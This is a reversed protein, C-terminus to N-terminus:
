AGPQATGARAIKQRAEEQKAIYFPVDQRKMYHQFREEVKAVYNRTEPIQGHWSTNIFYKMVNNHGSNYEAMTLARRRAGDYGKKGWDSHHEALLIVGYCVNNEEDMLFTEYEHPEKPKRGLIQDILRGTHPMVQMLGRAGKHSITEPKFHSETELAGYGLAIFEKFDGMDLGRKRAEKMASSITQFHPLGSFPSIAEDLLKDDLSLNKMKGNVITVYSPNAKDHTKLHDVLPTLQNAPEIFAKHWTIGLHKVRNYGVDHGQKSFEDLMNLVAQPNRSVATLYTGDSPIGYNILKDQISPQTQVPTTRELTPMFAAGTSIAGVAAAAVLLKSLGTQSKRREVESTKHLPADVDIRGNKRPVEIRSM